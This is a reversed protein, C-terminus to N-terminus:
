AELVCQRFRLLAGEPLQLEDALRQLPTHHGGHAGVARQSIRHGCLLHLEIAAVALHVILQHSQDCLLGGDCAVQSQRHRQEM